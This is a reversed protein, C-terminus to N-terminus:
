RPLEGPWYALLHSSTLSRVVARVDEERRIWRLAQGLRGEHPTVDKVRYRQLSAQRAAVAVADELTGLADVLGLSLARPALVVRGDALERAREITLGRGDAVVQAFDAWTADVDRQLAARSDDDLPRTIDLLGARAGRTVAVRDVGAREFLGSADPRLSFVGISGTICMPSAVIHRAGAAIYYGGSAAVSDLFAVVPKKGDLKKVAHWILDSALASGGRSDIRLVVAAVRDERELGRLAGVVTRSGATAGLGPLQKNPGEAIVGAVDLVAVVKRRDVLPRLVLPAGTRSLVARFPKLPSRGEPVPQGTLTAGVEDPYCLADVLGAEKARAATYPGDDIAQKVRAADLSRGQAADQVLGDYLDGLLEELQQRNEDSVKTAGALEGASKFRGARVVEVRLGLRALLGGAASANASLGTLELRGRPSLFIREGATALWWDRTDLHDAHFVVSKGSERFRSLLARLEARVPASAAFSELRFVVGKVWEVGSLFTLERELEVLTKPKGPGRLVWSPPESPVGRNLGHGLEYVVWEPRPGRRLFRLVGSLTAVLLVLLNRIFVFLLRLVRDSYDARRAVALSKAGPRVPPFVTAGLRTADVTLVGAM